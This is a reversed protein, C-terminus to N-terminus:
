AVAKEFCRELDVRLGAGDAAASAPNARVVIALGPRRQVIPLLLHRLRRSVRNRVVATGVAKPVILGARTPAATELQLVHLVVTASAARRGQRIVTTFDAAHRLRHTRPLM